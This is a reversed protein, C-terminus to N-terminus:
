GLAGGGGEAPRRFADRLSRAGDLYERGEGLVLLTVYIALALVARTWAGGPVAAPLLLAAGLALAASLAPPGWVRRYSVDSARKATALLAVASVFAVLSVAAAVGALGSRAGLLVAPVALALTALRVALVRRGAGVGILLEAAVRAPADVVFYLLLLRLPVVMPRWRDGLLAPVLEDAAVALPLAFALGARALVTLATRFARALEARESQLRAAVPLLVALAPQVLLRRPYTAVDFARSYQGLAAAGLTRGTWFDDFRDVLQGVLTIGWVTRGEALLQRAFGRDFPSREEPKERWARQLALRALHGAAPEAVLAWVGAGLAALTPAVVTMAASAAVDATRLKAFDLDRGLRLTGPASLSRLAEAGLFGWLVASSLALAPLLAVAPVVLLALLLLAALEIGLKLRRYTVFETEGADRRRLFAENLGPSLLQAATGVLVLSQTALGFTEPPLLRALLVLRVGALLWTALAAGLGYVSGRAAAALPSTPRDGPTSM